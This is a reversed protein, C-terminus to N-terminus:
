SSVSNRILRQIISARIINSKVGEMEPYHQRVLILAKDLYVILEQPLRVSVPTNLQEMDGAIDVFEYYNPIKLFAEIAEAIWKSKGRFKYGDGVIRELMNKELLAPLKVSTM